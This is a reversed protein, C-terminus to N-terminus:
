EITFGVRGLNQVEAEIRDGAQMFEAATAAGALVIWGAKLPEGAAASLRAANVLSELPDGLIAASSGCQVQQGNISMVIGLNYMESFPHSWPGIVYGSSSANDAIVDPLPNRFQTFQVIGINVVRFGM